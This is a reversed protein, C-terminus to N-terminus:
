ILTILGLYPSNCAVKQLENNFFIWVHVDLGGFYNPLTIQGAGDARTAVGQYMEFAKLGGNYCVVNMVDTANGNGQLSNDDQTFSM